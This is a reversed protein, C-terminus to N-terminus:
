PRDAVLAYSLPLGPSEPGAYRDWEASSINDPRETLRRLVLGSDAVASVVAGLTHHFWYHAAGDQPASGDYLIPGQEAFPASHFYSNALRWPDPDFPEFLVTMPHQEHLVLRGGPRLLRALVACFGPLDPMWGLVGVTVLVIDFRGDHDAPIAYVDGAVLEVPVGAIAALERGQALFAPSQDFGVLRAAGLRGVSILERANNCGVQAVAAGAVGAETLLRIELEDLCTFGPDAFGEALRTWAAGAGHHAASADWAARNAAVYASRDM